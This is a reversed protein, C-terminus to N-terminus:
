RKGQIVAQIERFEKESIQPVDKLLEKLGQVLAQNRKPNWCNLYAAEIEEDTYNPTKDNM